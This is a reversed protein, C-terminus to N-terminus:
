FTIAGDNPPDGVDIPFSVESFEGAGIIHIAYLLKLHIAVYIFCMLCCMCTLSVIKGFVNIIRIVRINYVDNNKELM